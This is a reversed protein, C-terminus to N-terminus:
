LKEGREIEEMLNSHGAIKKEWKMRKCNKKKRKRYVAWNIQRTGDEVDSLNTLYFEVIM